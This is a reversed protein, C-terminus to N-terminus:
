KPTELVSRARMDLELRSRDAIGLDYLEVEIAQKERELAEIESIHRQFYAPPFNFNYPLKGYVPM